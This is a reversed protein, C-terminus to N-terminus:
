RGGQPSPSPSSKAHGFLFSYSAAFQPSNVQSTPAVVARQHCSLCSLNSTQFFSELVPNVLAAINPTGNPLPIGQGATQTAIANEPWQVDLLQYFQFPSNGDYKAILQQQVWQNIPAADPDVPTVQVLQTPTPPTTAVNVPCDQPSCSPNYFSYPGSGIAGQLPCNDVQAFTAWFGQFLGSPRQMVHMGVLGVTVPSTGGGILAPSTLFRVPKAALEAPTLVKWAAKVEIAGVNGYQTAGLPLNIYGNKAATYQSDANYLKLTPDTIYNFEDQNLLMEYFVVQGAQDTLTTGGVQQQINLKLIQAEPLDTSIKSTQKLLRMRHAKVEASLTANLMKPITRDNWPPPKQGSPLFVQDFSKFTEWVVPGPGGFRANPDPQGPSGTLAPWNLYIFTQWMFCDVAADGQTSNFSAYITPSIAPQKNLPGGCPCPPLPASQPPEAPGGHTVSLGLLLVAVIRRCTRSFRRM